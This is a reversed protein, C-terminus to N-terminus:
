LGEEVRVRKVTHFKFVHVVKEEVELNHENM